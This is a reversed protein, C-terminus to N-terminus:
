DRGTIIKIIAFAFVAFLIGVGLGIIYGPLNLVEVGESIFTVLISLTNVALKASTFGANLFSVISDVFGVTSDQSVSDKIEEANDRIQATKNFLKLNGTDGDLSYATNGDDILGIFSAVFTAGILTAIIMNLLAGM